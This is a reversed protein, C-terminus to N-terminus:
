QEEKTMEAEATRPRAALKESARTLIEDTLEGGTFKNALKMFDTKVKEPSTGLLGKMSEAIEQIYLEFISRRQLEYEASQRKRVFAALRRGCEQLGLRLESIIEAYHAVAEKSESTFPVWVSAIHVFLIMPGVPLSGKPQSLMYNRWDTRIVAETIGCAGRQFLLPVRNAFRYLEVPKDGPLPGGYAIGVEVQFPNGRYVKPPRTVSTIFFKHGKIVEEGEDKGQAEVIAEAQAKQKAEEIKQAAEEKKRGKGKKAQLELQELDEHEVEEQTVTLFNTLGKHILEEGIPSLCNTPPAMIKTAQIAKHLQESLKLDEGVVRAKTKGAIKATKLIEDAITPSVRSFEHMLCGRLDRARSDKLILMLQGLEVGQPHPKIEVAERPPVEAARPFTLPEGDPRRYELKCHPNALATQELYRGLWRKGNRYDAEMEIEVRTGHDKELELQKDEEVVPANKRTDIRIEFHHAPRGKGTKSTVVIPKGTTLQGYMAAASIGIGQQGRAQKLRHFKSGYLLKGFIKPIQAKVIGPGNDEVAMVFRDPTIQRIEVLLEPLIGAEECADLSNDVAEKVATLLAKSPSDFGLLHRNKTFFESISIERQRTAMQEATARRVLKPRPLEAVEAPPSAPAEAAPEKTPKLPVAALRRASKSGRGSDKPILFLQGQAKSSRASKTKTKSKL